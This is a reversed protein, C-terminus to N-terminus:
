GGNQNTKLKCDKAKQEIAGFKQCKRKFKGDFFVVEQNNENESEENQKENL